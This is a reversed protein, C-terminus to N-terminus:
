DCTMTSLCLIKVAVFVITVIFDNVRDIESLRAVNGVVLHVADHNTGKLGTDAQCGDEVRAVGTGGEIKGVDVRCLADELLGVQGLFGALAEEANDGRVALAVQAADGAVDKAEDLLGGVAVIGSVAGEPCLRRGGVNDHPRAALVVLSRPHERKRL